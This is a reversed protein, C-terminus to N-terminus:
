KLIIPKSLARVTTLYALATKADDNDKSFLSKSHSIMEDQDPLTTASSKRESLEFSNPSEGRCSVSVKKKLDFWSGHISCRYCHYSGDNNVILKWMNSEKHKNGKDCFNCVQVEFFGNGRRYRTQMDELVNKLDQPQVQYHKSVFTSDLRILSPINIVKRFHNSLM